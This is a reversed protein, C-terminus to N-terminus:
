SVIGYVIGGFYRVITKGFLGVIYLQSSWVVSISLFNEHYLIPLVDLSPVCEQWSGVVRSNARYLYPRLSNQGFMRYKGAVSLWCVSVIGSWRKSSIPISKAKKGVVLIPCLITITM